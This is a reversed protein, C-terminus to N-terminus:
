RGPESSPRLAVSNWRRILVQSRITSARPALHDAEVSRAVARRQDAKAAAKASRAEARWAGPAGRKDDENEQNEKRAPTREIRPPQQDDRLVHARGVRDDHERTVLPLAEGRGRLERAAVRRADHQECHRDGDRLEIAM